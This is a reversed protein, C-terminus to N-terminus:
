KILNLVGILKTAESYKGFWGNKVTGKAHNFLHNDWWSYWRYCQCLFKAKGQCRNQHSDDEKSCIHKSLNEKVTGYKEDIDFYKEMEFESFFYVLQGDHIVLYYGLEEEWRDVYYYHYIMECIIDPLKQIFYLSKFIQLPARVQTEM